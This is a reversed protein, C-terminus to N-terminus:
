ALERLMSDCIGRITALQAAQPARTGSQDAAPTQVLLSSASLLAGFLIAAKIKLPNSEGKAALHHM